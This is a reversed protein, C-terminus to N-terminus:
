VSFVLGALLPGPALNYEGSGRLVGLGDWSGGPGLARVTALIEHLQGPRRSAQSIVCGAARKVDLVVVRVHDTTIPRM